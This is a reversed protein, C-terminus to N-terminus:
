LRALVIKMPHYMPKVRMHGTIPKSQPFVPRKKQDYGLEIFM